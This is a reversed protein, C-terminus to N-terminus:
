NYRRWKEGFFVVYLLVVGILFLLVSTAQGMSIFSNELHGRIRDGRFFEIVFRLASYSILYYSILISSSFKMKILKVALYTLAFLSISEYIQVPHRFEGHLFIKWPYHCSNGYCCGVLFCGIRGIGHGLLLTPILYRVHRYQFIKLVKILFLIYLSALIFGGHFVFGGGFWFNSSLALANEKGEGSNMLFFIKAGVWAFFSAGWFLLNVSVKERVFKALLYQLFRYAVGWAIGM